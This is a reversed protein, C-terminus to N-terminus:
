QFTDFLLNWTKRLNKSVYSHCGGFKVKVPDISLIHFNVCSRVMCVLYLYLEMMCYRFNIFNLSCAVWPMLFVEYFNWMIQLQIRLSIIKGKEHMFLLCLYYGNIKEYVMGLKINKNFVLCEISCLLMQIVDNPSRFSWIHIKSGLM